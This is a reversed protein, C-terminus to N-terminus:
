DGETKELSVIYSQYWKKSIEEYNQKLLRPYPGNILLYPKQNQGIFLKEDIQSISDLDAGYSIQFLHLKLDCSAWGETKEPYNFDYSLSRIYYVPKKKLFEVKLLNGDVLAKQSEPFHGNELIYDTIIREIAWAPGGIGSYASHLHGLFYIILILSAVLISNLIKKSM